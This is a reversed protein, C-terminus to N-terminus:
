NTGKLPKNGHSGSSSTGSIAMTHAHVCLIGLTHIDRYLDSEVIM